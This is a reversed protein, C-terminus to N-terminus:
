LVTLTQARTLMRAEDDEPYLRLRNGLLLQGIQILYTQLLDDQRREDARKRDSTRQQEALLYGGLVLVAPIVLLSLWDWLTRYTTDKFNVVGVWKLEFIYGLIIITWLVACAMVAVQRWVQRWYGPPQDQRTM